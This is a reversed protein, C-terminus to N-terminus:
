PRGQQVNEDVDINCGALLGRLRARAFRTVPHRRQIHRTDTRVRGRGPFRSRGGDPVYFAKVSARRNQNIRYDTNSRLYGAAAFARPGSQESRRRLFRSMGGM